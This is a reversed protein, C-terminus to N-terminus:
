IEYGMKESFIGKKIDKAYMLLMRDIHVKYVKSKEPMKAIEYTNTERHIVLEGTMDNVFGGLAYRVRKANKEILKCYVM